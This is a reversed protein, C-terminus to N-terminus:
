GSESFTRTSSKWITRKKRREKYGESSSLNDAYRQKMKQETFPQKEINDFSEKKRDEGQIEHHNRSKSTTRRIWMKGLPRILKQYREKNPFEKWSDVRIFNYSDFRDFSTEEHLIQAEEFKDPFTPIDEEEGDERRHKLFMNYVVLNRRRNPKTKDKSLSQAGDVKSGPSSEITNSITSRTTEEPATSSSKEEKRTSKNRGKVVHNKRHIVTEEKLTASNSPDILKKDVFNQKEYSDPVTLNRNRDKHFGQYEEQFRKLFGGDVVEDIDQWESHYSIDVPFSSVHDTREAKNHRKKIAEESFVADEPVQKDLTAM